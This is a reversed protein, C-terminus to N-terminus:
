PAATPARTPTPAPTPTLTPEQTIDSPTFKKLILVFELRSFDVTPRITAEQFLDIDHKRVETVEGIVLRKPFTGGLGSTLILDGVKIAEGQPVYQIILQPTFPNSGIMGQVVGTARTSQVVGNVSSSPDTILLVKAWHTGAETVRGVLGQPTVVPMGVKVGEADGQDVIIYHTLNTPDQGIIHAQDPNRQLVAAGILNFDPNSQKYGLQQRLIANENQLERVQVSNIALENVQSQLQKIQEQLANVDAFGGTLDQAGQGVGLAGHFLPELLGLGINELPQLQGLQHLILALLALVILVVVVTPRNRNSAYM